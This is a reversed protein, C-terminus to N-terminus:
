LGGWRKFFFFRNTKWSCMLNTHSLFVMEVNMVAKDVISNHNISSYFYLRENSWTFFLFFYNTCFFFRNFDIYLMVRSM